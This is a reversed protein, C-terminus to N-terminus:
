ASLLGGQMKEKRLTDTVVTRITNALARAQQNSTNADIESNGNNDVNVTINISPTNDSQALKRDMAKATREPLVREGKELNWTGSKPVSMIGDHAQGIPMSISKIASTIKAGEALALAINAARDYPTIGSAMAKSVATKIALASQAIAFGKQMAFMARYIGSQEGAMDKTISTLSGAIEASKNLALENRAKHFAEENKQIVEDYKKRTIVENSLANDIISKRSDMATQLKELEVAFPDDVQQNLGKEMSAFDSAAVAQRLNTMNEPTAGEFQGRIDNDIAYELKQMGTANNGLVLQRNISAVSNLINENVANIKNEKEMVAILDEKVKILERYSDLAESNIGKYAGSKRDYDFSALAENFNDGFLREQNMLYIDKKLGGMAGAVSKALNLAAMTAENEKGKIGLVLGEVIYGGYEKFLRSPSHINLVRKFAGAVNGALDSVISVASSFKAKVGNILGQVVDKGIQLMKSGLGAFALIIKVNVDKVLNLIHSFGNKFNSIAADLADGIILGAEKLGNGIADKVGQMDGHVLAKITNFITSAANKILDFQVSFIARISGLVNKIPDPLGNVVDMIASDIGKFTNIVDAVADSVSTKISDWAGSISTKVSEWVEHTKAQLSNWADLLNTKILNGADTVGTTINNWVESITEGLEHAKETLYDWNKYVLYGVAVLGGIVAIAAAIPSGILAIAGSVGTFITKATSFVSIFGQAAVVTGALGAVVGTLTTVLEPNNSAWEGVAQIVPTMNLMVDNLVPIFADGISAMAVAMNNKFLEMKNASTNSIAKFEKELSGATDKTTEIAKTVTDFGAAMALLKPAAETGAFDYAAAARQEEPLKKLAELFMLVAKEGDNAVADTFEKTQLGMGKLANQGKKSVSDLNMLKGLLSNFATSAVEPQMGLAVMSSGFAATAEESMKMSSALSASRKMFGIIDPATSAMSNSLANITNGLGEINEIPLEFVNAIKAMSDSVEASSMDFAVGMKAITETFGVINKEAIGLQGANAAIASLEDFSQPIEMSLQELERRMNKIGDPTDFDVTKNIEAMSKEFDVAQKTALGVTGAIGALAVKSVNALKDFGKAVDDLTADTRDLDDNLDDIEKDLEDIKKDIKEVSKAFSNTAKETNGVKQGAKTASNGVNDLGDSAKDTRADLEEFIKNLNSLKKDGDKLDIVISVRSENSM